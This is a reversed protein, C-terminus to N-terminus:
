KDLSAMLMHMNDFYDLLSETEKPVINKSYKIDNKVDKFFWVMWKVM